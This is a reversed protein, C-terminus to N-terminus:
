PHHVIIDPLTAHPVDAPGTNNIRIRYVTGLRRGSRERGQSQSLEAIALVM